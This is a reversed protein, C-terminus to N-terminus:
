LSEPKLSIRKYKSINSSFIRQKVWWSGERCLIQASLPHTIETSESLQARMHEPRRNSKVFSTVLLFNLNLPHPPLILSIDLIYQELKRDALSCSPATAIKKVSAKTRVTHGKEVSLPVPTETRAAM